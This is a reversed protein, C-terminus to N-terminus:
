SNNKLEKNLMSKENNSQKIFTKFDTLTIFGDHNSDIMDVMLHATEMSVIDGVEQFMQYLDKACIYGDKFLDVVGFAETIDAETELFHKKARYRFILKVFEEVNVDGDGDVDVTDIMAHVQQPNVNMGLSNMAEVLELESIAGSGDTDFSDFAELYYFVEEKSVGPFINNQIIKAKLEKVPNRRLININIGKMAIKKRTLGGLFEEFDFSKVEPNMDLLDDPHRDDTELPHNEFITFSSPKDASEDNATLTDGIAFRISERRKASSRGSSVTSKRPRRTAAPIVPLSPIESYSENSTESKFSNRKSMSASGVVSRRSISPRSECEIIDVSGVMGGTTSPRISQRRGNGNAKESQSTSYRASTSSRSNTGEFVSGRREKIDAVSEDVMTRASSSTTYRRTKREMMPGKAPQTNNSSVMTPGVTSSRKPLSFVADSDDYELILSQAISNKKDM